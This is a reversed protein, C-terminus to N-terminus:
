IVRLDTDFFEVRKIKFISSDGFLTKLFEDARLSPIEENQGAKLVFSLVNGDLIEFTKLSNRYNITKEIGKKTKKTILLEDSSLCKEIIYRIKDLNYVHNKEDNLIAEYKAWQVYNELSKPENKNDDIKNLSIVEIGKPSFKKFQKLFDEKLPELTQFNVLECNSEIFIPLAPSYSVKPMKNFGQSLALKLECRRFIKLILNQWDLHSIFRLEKNKTIKLRYKYIKEESM